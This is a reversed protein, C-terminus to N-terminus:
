GNWAVDVIRSVGKYFTNLDTNRGSLVLKLGIDDLRDIDYFDSFDGEFEKSREWFFIDDVCSKSELHYLDQTYKETGFKREFGLLFNLEVEFKLRRTKCSKFSDSIRNKEITGVISAWFTHLFDTVIKKFYLFFEEWFVRREQAKPIHSFQSFVGFIGVFIKGFQECIVRSFYQEDSLTHFLKDNRFESFRLMKGIGLFESFIQFIEKFFVFFVDDEEFPTLIGDEEFFGYFCNKFIWFVCFFETTLFLEPELFFFRIKCRTSLFFRCFFLICM